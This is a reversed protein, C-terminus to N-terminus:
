ILFRRGRRNAVHYANLVSCDNKGLGCAFYTITSKPYAIEKVLKESGDLRCVAECSYKKNCKRDNLIV